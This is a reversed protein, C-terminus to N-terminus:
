GVLVPLAGLGTACCRTAGARVRRARGREIWALAPPATLAAVGLAVAQARTEFALVCLGLVVLQRAVTPRELALVLALALCLFIPYFVNETMLTGAYAAWPVA